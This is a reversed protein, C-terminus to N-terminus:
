GQAEPAPAQDPSSSAPPEAYGSPEAPATAQEHQTVIEAVRPSPVDDPYEFEFMVDVHEINSSMSYSIVDAGKELEPQVATRDVIEPDREIQSRRYSRVIFKQM